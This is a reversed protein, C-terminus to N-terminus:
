ELFEQSLPIYGSKGGHTCCGQFQDDGYVANCSHHHIMTSTSTTSNPTVAASSLSSLSSPAAFKAFTGQQVMIKTEFDYRMRFWERTMYHCIQDTDSQYKCGWPKPCITFHGLKVTHRPVKRCDICDMGKPGLCTHKLDNEQIPYHGMNNYTCYDLEVAEGPHLADYFYAVIGQIQQAGFYGGYKGGWGSGPKFDGKLIVAKYEDFAARNPKIVLFGGQMGVEKKGPKIMLYDRTFMAQISQNSAPVTTQNRIQLQNRFPLLKQNDSRSRSDGEKINDNENDSIVPLIPDELMADFIEDLPQFLVSDMDLHVVIPYDDLTYAWLKIFEKEGCCGSKVVHTRLFDGEIHSVNVPTERVLIEYGLNALGHSCEVASPHVFAVLHYDYQTENPKVHISNEHISHKLVAPGDFLGVSAFSSHGSGATSGEGCGTLSLAYAITAKTNPKNVSKVNSSGTVTGTVTGVEDENQQAVDVDGALVVPATVTANHKANNNNKQQKSLRRLWEEGSIDNLALSEQSFIVGGGDSMSLRTSSGTGLYHHMQWISRIAFLLLAWIFVSTIIGCRDRDRRIRQQPSHSHSTTATVTNAGGIGSDGQNNNVPAM